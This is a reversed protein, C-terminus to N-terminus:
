SNTGSHIGDETIKYTVKSYRISLPGVFFLFVAIASAYIFFFIFMRAWDIDIDDPTVMTLFIYLIIEIVATVLLVRFIRGASFKIMLNSYYIAVEKPRQWQHLIKAESTM